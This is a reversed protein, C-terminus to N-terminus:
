ENSNYRLQCEFSFTCAPVLGPWATHSRHLLSYPQIPSAEVVDCYRRSAWMMARIVASTKPQDRQGLLCLQYLRTEFESFNFRFYYVFTPCLTTECTQKNRLQKIHTLVARLPQPKSYSEAPMIFLHHESRSLQSDRRYLFGACCRGM